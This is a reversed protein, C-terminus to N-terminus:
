KKERDRVDVAVREGGQKGGASKLKAGVPPNAAAYKHPYAPMRTNKHIHTCHTPCTFGVVVADTM